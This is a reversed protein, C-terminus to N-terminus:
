NEVRYIPAHLIAITHYFLDEESTEIQVLYTTAKDSLNSTIKREDNQDFLTARENKLYLPICSASRDMLDICGISRIFQPLSWERRPKQQSVIWSNRDFVHLFYESRKEDLLKTEPEWYLWRVDFPRYCYRVFNQAQFGRKRLYDRVQEANFRATSEMAGPAI